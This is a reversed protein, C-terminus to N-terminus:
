RGNCLIVLRFPRSRIDMILLCIPLINRIGWAPLAALATAPCTFSRRQQRLQRRMAQGIDKESWEKMMNAYTKYEPTEYLNVITADDQYATGSVSEKINGDGLPDFHRVALSYKM